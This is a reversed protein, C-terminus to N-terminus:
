KEPSTYVRAMMAKYEKSQTFADYALKRELSYHNYLVTIDFGSVYEILRELTHAASEFDGINFSAEVKRLHYYYFEPLQNPDYVKLVDSYRGCNFCLFFYSISDSSFDINRFIVDQCETNLGEIIANAEESNVNNVHNLLAILSITDRRTCYIEAEVQYFISSDPHDEFDLFKNSWFSSDMSLKLVRSQLNRSRILMWYSYLFAPRRHCLELLSDVFSDPLVLQLDESYEGARYALYEDTVEDIDLDIIVKHMRSRWKKSLTKMSPMGEVLKIGQAILDVDSNSFFMRNLSHTNQRRFLALSDVKESILKNREDDNAILALIALEDYSLDDWSNCTSLIELLDDHKNNEAALHIFEWISHERNLFYVEDNYEMNLFRSAINRLRQWHDDKLTFQYHNRLAECTKWIEFSTFRNIDNTLRLISFLKFVANSNARLECSKMLCDISRLIDHPKQRDYFFSLLYWYESNTSDSEVLELLRNGFGQYCEEAEMYLLQFEMIKPWNPAIQIMSDRLRKEVEPDTVYTTVLEESNVESGIYYRYEVSSWPNVGCKMMINFYAASGVFQHRMECLSDLMGQSYKRLMRGEDNWNKKLYIAEVLKLYSELRDIEGASRQLTKAKNLYSLRREYFKTTYTSGIELMLEQNIAEFGAGSLASMYYVRVPEMQDASFQAALQTYIPEASGEGLYKGARVLKKLENFGAYLTSDTFWSSEATSRALAISEGVNVSSLSETELKTLFTRDAKGQWSMGSPSAAFQPVQNRGMSQTEKRVKTKTYQELEYFDVTGDANEDAKGSLGQVLYWTFIGHGRGWRRDEVALQNAGASLMLTEGAKIEVVSEFPNTIGTRAGPLDGSRCADMILVVEAGASSFKAIRKKLARINLAGSVFYNNKDGAPNVNHCLFFSEDADIADGHGALYIIVRDGQAPKVTNEIWSLGRGWVNQLTAEENVLLRIDAPSVNGGANSQLFDYMLLADEAAYNLPTVFPYDSVGVVLAVTRGAKTAAAPPTVTGFGRTQEQAHIQM